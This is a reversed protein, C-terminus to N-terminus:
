AWGEHVLWFPGDFALEICIIWWGFRDSAAAPLPSADRACHRIVVPMGTTSSITARILESCLRKRLRAISSVAEHGRGARRHRCNSQLRFMSAHISQPAAPRPIRGRAQSIISEISDDRPSGHVFLNKAEGIGAPLRVGPLAKVLRVM